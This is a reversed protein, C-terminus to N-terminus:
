KAHTTIENLSGISLDKTNGDSLKAVAESLLIDKIDGSFPLVILSQSKDVDQNPVSQILISNEDPNSRTRTGQGSLNQPDITITDKDFSVTFDINKPTELTEAM